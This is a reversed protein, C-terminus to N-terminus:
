NNDKHLSLRSKPASPTRICLRPQLNLSLLKKQSCSHIKNAPQM